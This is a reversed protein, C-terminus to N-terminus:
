TRSSRPTRGARPSMRHKVWRALEEDMVRVLGRAALKDLIQQHKM